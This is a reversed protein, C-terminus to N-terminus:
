IEKTGMLGGLHEGSTLDKACALSPCERGGCALYTEGFLESVLEGRPVLFSVAIIM